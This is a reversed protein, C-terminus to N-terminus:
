FRFGTDPATIKVADAPAKEESMYSLYTVADERMVVSLLCAAAALFLMGIVLEILLSDRALIVGHGIALVACIILGTLTFKLSMVFNQTCRYEYITMKHPATLYSFILTVSWLWAVLTAIEPLVVIWSTNCPAPRTCAIAFFVAACIYLIVALVRNFRRKKETLDPTHYEGTYVRKLKLKGSADKEMFESYGEFHRRYSKTRFETGRVATEQNQTDANDATNKNLTM